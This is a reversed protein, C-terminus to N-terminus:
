VFKEFRQRFSLPMEEHNLAESVRDLDACTTDWWFLDHNIRGENKDIWYESIVIKEIKSVEGSNNLNNAHRMGHAIGSDENKSKYTYSHEHEETKVHVEFDM